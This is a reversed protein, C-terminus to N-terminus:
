HIRWSTCSCRKHCTLKKKEDLTSIGRLNEDEEPDEHDCAEIDLKQSNECRGLSGVKSKKRNRREMHIDMNKKKVMHTDMSKRKAMRTDTNKRREMLIGTSKKRSETVTVMATAMVTALTIM